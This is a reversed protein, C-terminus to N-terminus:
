NENLNKVSRRVNLRTDFTFDANNKDYVIKQTTRDIIISAAKNGMEYIQQRVTTLQPTMHESFDYDDFGVVSIDEPVRKNLDNLVTITKIAEQDNMCLIATPLDNRQELNEITLKLKSFTVEDFIYDEKYPINFEKLSDCYAAYREKHSKFSLDLTVFAIKTHGMEHFYRMAQRSGEYDNSSLSYVDEGQAKRNITVIPVVGAINSVFHDDLKLDMFVCALIRQTHCFVKFENKDKPVKYSSILQMDYGKEFFKDSLGRLTRTLYESEFVNGEPRMFLAISNAKNASIKPTYEQERIIKLIIERTQEGVGEKGNIVKSVTSPSVKALKAITYISM